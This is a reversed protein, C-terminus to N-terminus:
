LLTREPSSSPQIKTKQGYLTTLYQVLSNFWTRGGMKLLILKYM